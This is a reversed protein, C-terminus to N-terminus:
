TEVIGSMMLQLSVCMDRKPDESASGKCDDADFIVQRYTLPRFLNTANWRTSDRRGMAIIEVLKNSSSEAPQNIRLEVKWEPDDAATTPTSRTLAVALPDWSTPETM